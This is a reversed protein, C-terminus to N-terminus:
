KSKSRMLNPQLSKYQHSHVSIEMKEWGKLIVILLDGTVEANGRRRPERYRRQLIQCRKFEEKKCKRGGERIIITQSRGAGKRRSAKEAPADGPSKGQPRTRGSWTSSKM